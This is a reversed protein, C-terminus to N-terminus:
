RIRNIEEEGGGGMHSHPNSKSLFTVKGKRYRHCHARPWSPRLLLAAAPGWRWTARYLSLFPCADRSVSHGPSRTTRGLESTMCIFPTILLM